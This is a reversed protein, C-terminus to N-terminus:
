SSKNKGRTRITHYGEGLAEMMSAHFVRALGPDGTAYGGSEPDFIRQSPNAHGLV